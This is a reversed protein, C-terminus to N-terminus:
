RDNEVESTQGVLSFSSIINRVGEWDKSKEAEVLEYIIQSVTTDYDASVELLAASLAENVRELEEIKEKM